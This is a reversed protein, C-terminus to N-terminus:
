TLNGVNKKNQLSSMKMNHGKWELIYASLIHRIHSKRVTDIVLLAHRRRCFVLIQLNISIKWDISYLISMNKKCTSVKSFLEDLPCRDVAYILLM